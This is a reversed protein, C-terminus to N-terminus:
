KKGRLDFALGDATYRHILSGECMQVFSEAAQKNVVDPRPPPNGEWACMLITCSTHQSAALMAFIALVAKQYEDPLEFLDLGIKHFYLDATHAVLEPGTKGDPSVSFSHISNM